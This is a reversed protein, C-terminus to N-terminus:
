FCHHPPLKLMLELLWLRTPLFQLPLDGLELPLVGDPLSLLLLVPRDSLRDLLVLHVFVILSFVSFLLSPLLLQITGRIITMIPHLVLTFSGTLNDTLWFTLWLPARGWCFPILGTFVTRIWSAGGLVVVWIHLPGITSFGLSVLAGRRMRMRHCFLGSPQWIVWFYLNRSGGGLVGLSGFRVGWVYVEWGLGWLKGGCLADASPCNRM